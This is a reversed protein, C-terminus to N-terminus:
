TPTTREFCIDLGDGDEEPSLPTFIRRSIKTQAIFGKGVNQVPTLGGRDTDDSNNSQDLKKLVLLFVVVFFLLM